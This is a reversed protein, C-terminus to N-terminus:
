TRDNRANCARAASSSSACTSSRVFASASASAASLVSIASRSFTSSLKRCACFISATPWNVPPMACSKLLKSM